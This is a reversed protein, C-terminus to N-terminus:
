FARATLLTSIHDVRIPDNTFLGIAHTAGVSLGLLRAATLQLELYHKARLQTAHCRMVAEWKEVSRSIDVVLDPNRGTHLTINYFLLASIAHPQHPKLEELGGYRALRCADRTLRGAIAHDPHQNEEPNPALVIAPRHHRIQDAIRLTNRPHYELHCDGGFDLFEVNAGMLSAATRSEQEREEPTGSSGAEGRSLVLLEVQTGREIEQLLVPAVGFEIDDPHAGIALITM